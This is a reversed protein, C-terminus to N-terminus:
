AVTVSKALNRPQDIPLGRLSACEYALLQLTVAVPFASMAGGEGPVRLVMDASDPEVEWGDPALMLVGGGRSRNERACLLAKAHSAEVTSILVTPVGPEILSIIGHKMEGAPYAEAHVYSIEKIKLAGEEALAMDVGRGLYFIDKAGSLKEAAARIDARRELAAEVQRDVKRLAAIEGSIDIGRLQALKLAVLYLVAVQTTYAKTSAVAIEPGAVTYVVNPCERAMTSGRVNIVCMVKAGTANAKRLAALTDATEGSQSILIYLGNPDPLFDRDQFESSVDVDTQVRAVSEFLPRGTLGAHMATGCGIIHVRAVNEFLGDDLGDVSFDVSGGRLYQSLTRRLVSPQEYIEKLMYHPYGQRDAAHVDWDVVKEPPHIEAGAADFCRIGSADLECLVDDDPACYSRGYQLFALVDSSVYSGRAAHMVTLPSNRRIAFLKDPHDDFLIALAFSGELMATAARIAARPDGHYLADIQMAIIETDTESVPARGEKALAERLQPYNEVIGNHVLTVRGARHPHANLENVAGHTAWRTHGVGAHADPLAAAAERLAAVKHTTKAIRVTGEADMLAIGASDYGRYELRELGDLLPAKASGLGIYGFIGCM